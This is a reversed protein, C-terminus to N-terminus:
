LLNAESTLVNQLAGNPSISGTVPRTQQADPAPFSATRVAGGPAFNRRGLRKASRLIIIDDDSSPKSEGVCRDEARSGIEERTDTVKPNESAELGGVLANAKCGAARAREPVASVAVALSDRAAEPDPFAPVHVPCAHEFVAMVAVPETEDEGLGLGPEQPDTEVGFFGGAAEDLADLPQASEDTPGGARTPAQM